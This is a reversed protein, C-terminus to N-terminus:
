QQLVERYYNLLSPITAEPSLAAVSQRAVRGIGDLERNEWVDILKDALAAVNNAEALFGNRGDEILEEFSAGRTYVFLGDSGM